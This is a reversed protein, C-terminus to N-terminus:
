CVRRSWKASNNSIVCRAPSSVFKSKLALRITAAVLVSFEIVAGSTVTAPDGPTKACRRGPIRSLLRVLSMCFSRERRLGHARTPSSYLYIAYRCEGASLLRALSASSLRDDRSLLSCRALTVCEGRHPASYPTQRYISECLQVTCWVNNCAGLQM